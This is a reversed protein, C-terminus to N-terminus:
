YRGSIGFNVFAGNYYVAQVRDPTYYYWKHPANFMNQFDCYIELRPSFVYSLNLNAFTRSFRYRLRSPDSSYGVLHEGTYNVLLRSRFGKWPFSLGGNVTTPVFNAVLNTTRPGIIGYDGETTLRTYNAFVNLRRLAGPFFSLQQQWSLEVGDITATGGNLDTILSYGGYSGGYGNDPGNPVTQGGLNVIFDKISKRFVGASVIGVPEFYYELSLDLNRALQPKLAPNAVTLTQALDNVNEVPVLNAFPPRGISNSWNARALVNRSLYYTLYAGPFMEGYSGEIRRTNGYDARARQVPDPITAATALTRARVFGQGEVATREYRVGAVARLSQWRTSGMVYGSSVDETVRRTGLFTRTEDYYQDAWWSSPNKKVDEAVYGVHTYPFPGNRLSESTQLDKFLFVSLDADNKGTAPNVGLIGDPGAYQWRRDRGVEEAIQRRFRGGTKISTVGRPDLRYQANLSASELIGNRDNNRKNMESNTYNRLDYLSPGATQTFQPLGADATKDLTWGVGTIWTRFYGGSGIGPDNQGDDQRVLSASYAADYDLTFRPYTHEAGAHLQRQSDEFRNGDTQLEFISAPVARVQTLADTYGALIANTGTPLGAANLPAVSRATYARTRLYEFSREYANNYIGNLFVRLHPSFRYDIKLTASQNMRNNYIDASRYDWVYAPSATTYAYDQTLQYGSTANESYFLSFTVGLNREGGFADFVEQYSFSAMPHLSHDRTAPNHDYFPPAWKAGLRYIMRRKEKLSLPSRTKMNINGGLSDADMDPTQAKTVEITDFFAGPISNTRFHRNMAGSSAMKNGDVTVSNLFQSTGRVMVEAVVGEGNLAGAIGPLRILLEGPESNSLNGYADLAVVSKVSAANRQATLAAANGEREGTVTFAELRYVDATLDFAVAVPQGPTVMVTRSEPNLGIYTVVLRHSGPAVNEFVFRGVSDTLTRLGAGPIEVSAGELLDRTAANSVLGSIRNVPSTSSAQLPAIVAALALLSTSRLAAFGFTLLRPSHYM